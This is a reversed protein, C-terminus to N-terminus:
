RSRVMRSVLAVVLFVACYDCVVTPGSPVDLRYSLLLGVPVTLIAVACSAVFITKTNRFLMLGAMPPIVLSAFVFLIGSVKMALAIALGVSAYLMFDYFDAKMGSAHAMDKDFSVFLFGRFLALHIGLVVVCLIALVWLDGGTAYLLNGSILDLGSAEARPNLAILIISLAAAVCYTLGIVSEKSISQERLPAWFFVVGALTLLLAFADAHIGLMLGFAVGLAALQSLAIAMFAVRKLIVYVGLFTCLGGSLIGAALAYRMFPERFAEM